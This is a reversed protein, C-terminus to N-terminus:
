GIESIRASFCGSLRNGPDSSCNRWDFSWCRCILLMKGGWMANGIEKQILYLSVGFQIPACLFPALQLFIGVVKEVDVNVLNLIQGQSFEYSAKQSLRLSKEYIAGVLITRVKVQVPILLNSSLSRFVVSGLQLGFLIFAFKVGTPVDDRLGIGYTNLFIILEKIYTPQILSCATSAAQYLVSLVVFGGFARIFLVSATARKRWFPSLFNSLKDAEFSDPLALLQEAQLPKRAGEFM